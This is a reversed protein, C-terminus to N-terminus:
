HTAKALKEKIIKICPQWGPCPDTPVGALDALAAVIKSVEDRWMKEHIASAKLRDEIEELKAMMTENGMHVEDNLTGKGEQV